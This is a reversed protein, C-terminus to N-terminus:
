VQGEEKPNRQAHNDEAGSTKAQTKSLGCSKRSRATSQVTSVPHAASRRAASAPQPDKQIFNSMPAGKSWISDNLFGDLIVDENLTLISFSKRNSDEGICLSSCFLVNIILKILIM